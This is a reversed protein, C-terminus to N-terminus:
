LEDFVERAVIGGGTFQGAAICGAVTPVVRARVAQDIDKINLLYSTQSQLEGNICVDLAFFYGLGTLSPFGGYGNTAAGSRQSDPAANIAFRVQRTLHFM